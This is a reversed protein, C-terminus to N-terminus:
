RIKADSRLRFTLVAESPITAPDGRTALVAGTGAGAGAAAGIAAGKGGGAIAGIAAGIGSGIGVKLADKKKSAAAVEVVSDTSIPVVTGDVTELSTLQVALQARGKVRGGPDSEVVQGKVTAGRTAVTVGDHVLDSALTATFSDGTQNQKTSLATTTRVRISTGAPLVLAKPPAVAEPQSSVPAGSAPTLPRSSERENRSARASRSPERSTQTSSPTSPKSSDASTEAPAAAEPGETAAAPTEQKKGCGAAMLASALAAILYWKPSKSLMNLEERDKRGSLSGSM